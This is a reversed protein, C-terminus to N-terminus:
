LGPTAILASTLFLVAAVIGAVPIPSRGAPIMLHLAVFFLGLAVFMGYLGEM